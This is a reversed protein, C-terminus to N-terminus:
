SGIIRKELYRMLKTEKPKYHDHGLIHLVGHVLLWELEEKVPKKNQRAQKVDQSYCIIVEGWYRGTPKNKLPNKIDQEAFSLVDTVSDKGRYAKNLKKMAPGGVLALSILGSNKLRLVKQMKKFISRWFSKPLRPGIQQNLEFDIM